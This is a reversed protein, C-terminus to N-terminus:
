HKDNIFAYDTVSIIVKAFTFPPDPFDVRHTLKAAAIQLIPYLTETTSASRCPEAKSQIFADVSWFRFAISTYLCEDISLKFLKDVSKM